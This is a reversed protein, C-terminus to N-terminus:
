YEPDVEEPKKTYSSWHAPVENGPSWNSEYDHNNNIWCKVRSKKGDEDYRTQNKKLEFVDSQSLAKRVMAMIINEKADRIGPISKAQRIIEDWTIRTKDQMWDILEPLGIEEYRHAKNSQTQAPRLDKPVVVLLRSPNEFESPNFTNMIEGWVQDRIEAMVGTDLDGILIPVDKHDISLFRRDGTSDRYVDNNNSTGCLACTRPNDSSSRGYPDRYNDEQISIFQKLKDDASKGGRKVPSLEPMEVIIKARLKLLEDKNNQGGAVISDQVSDTFWKSDPCLERFFYSKGIGQNGFINLMIEMKCGPACARAAVGRMWFWLFAKYAEYLRDDGRSIKEHKLQMVETCLREFAPGPGPRGSGWYDEDSGTGLPCSMFYDKAINAHERHQHAYNELQDRVAEKSFDLKFKKAIWLQAEIAWDIKTSMPKRNRLYGQTFDDFEITGFEHEFIPSSIITFLNQVCKIIHGKKSKILELTAVDKKTKQEEKSKQFADSQIVSEIKQRVMDEDPPDMRELIDPMLAWLDEESYGIGVFRLLDMYINRDRGDGHLGPASQIYADQLQVGGSTKPTRGNLIDVLWQPMDIINIIADDWRYSGDTKPKKSPEVFTIGGNETPNRKLGGRTDIGPYSVESNSIIEPHYKFILHRGGSPTSAMLTQHGDGVGDSYDGYAMMLDALNQIGDIDGKQDLDIACFGSQGGHAMAISAGPYQGDTPHWWKDILKLDITAHKQSLGKPYGAYKGNKDGTKFPVIMFGNSAYWKAAQHIKINYDDIDDIARRLSKVDLSSPANRRLTKSPM